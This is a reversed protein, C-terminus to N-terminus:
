MIVFPLKHKKCFKHAVSNKPTKIVSQIIPMNYRRIAGKRKEKLDGFAKANIKKVAKPIFVTGSHLNFADEPIELISDPLVVDIVSCSFSDSSIKTVTNPVKCSYVESERSCYIVATKDKTLLLGNEVCYNENNSDVLVKVDVCGFAGDLIESVSSPIVITEVNSHVYEFEGDKEILSFCYPEIKTVGEPIIIKKSKKSIYNILTGTPKENGNESSTKWKIFNGNENLEYIKEM